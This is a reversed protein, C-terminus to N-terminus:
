KYALNYRAVAISAKFCLSVHSEVDSALTDHALTDGDGPPVQGVSQICLM